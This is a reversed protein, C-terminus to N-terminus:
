SVIHTGCGGVLIGTAADLEAFEFEARPDLGGFVEEDVGIHVLL